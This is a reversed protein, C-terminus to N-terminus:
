PSYKRNHIRRAFVYGIGSLEGVTEPSCVDWYGQRYHESFFGIWQYQLPFSNRIDPGNQQPVSFLGFNKFNASVIELPGGELKPLEFEMNSQGGLLLIDGVLINELDIRSDKGQVVITRPESSAPMAPLEVKWSRNAAAASSQSEGGFTVTVKEGPMAWGWVRVPKDRQLVMNSQFLNHVCLGSGVAPTDVRGKGAELKGAAEVSRPTISAVVGALLMTLYYKKMNM